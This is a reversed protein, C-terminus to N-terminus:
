RARTGPDRALPSDVAPRVEQSLIGKNDTPSTSGSTESGTEPPGVWGLKVSAITVALIAAVVPLALHLDLRGRQHKM